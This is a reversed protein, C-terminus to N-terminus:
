AEQNTQKLLFFFFLACVCTTKVEPCTHRLESRLSEDFFVAGAKSMCYDVMAAVGVRGASSAITVVHGRKREMMRPLFAKTVWMLAVANVQMTLESRADDAELLKKGAVIGANNILIDIAGGFDELTQKGAAYVLNRDVVNVKYAKAYGGAAIIEAVTKEAAPLDMDWIAVRVGQKALRKALGAGIGGAGGTICATWGKLDKERLPFTAERLVWFALVM